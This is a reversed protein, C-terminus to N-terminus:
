FYISQKFFTVSIEISIPCSLQHTKVNQNESHLYYLFTKLGVPNGFLSKERETTLPPYHCFTKLISVFLPWLNFRMWNWNGM